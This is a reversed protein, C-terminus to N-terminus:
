TTNSRQKHYYLDHLYNFAVVQVKNQVYTLWACFDFFARKESVPGLARQKLCSYIEAIM